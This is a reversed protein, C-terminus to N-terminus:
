FDLMETTNDTLKSTISPFHSRLVNLVFEPERLSYMNSPIDYDKEIVNAKFLDNLLVSVTAPSKKLNQRIEASSLKHKKLLLVLIDRVSPRTFYRCIIAEKTPISVDYFRTVRPTREVNVKGSNELKNVYHTLTGNKLKSIRMIENFRIAPNSKIISHILELRQLNTNKKFFVLIYEM